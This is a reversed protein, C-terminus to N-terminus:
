PPGGPPPFHEVLDRLRRLLDPHDPIKWDDPGILFQADLKDGMSQDELRTLIEEDM